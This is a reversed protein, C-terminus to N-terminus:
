MPGADPAQWHLSGRLEEVFLRQVTAQCPRLSEAFTAMQAALSRGDDSRTARLLPLLRQRQQMGFSLELLYHEVLAAVLGPPLRAPSAAILVQRAMNRALQAPPLLLVHLTSVFHHRQWLTGAPSSLFNLVEAPPAPPLPVPASDVSSSLM